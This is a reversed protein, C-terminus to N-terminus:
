MNTNWEYCEGKDLMMQIIDLGKKHMQYAWSESRDFEKGIDYYSNINRVYKAYIVNYLNEPLQEITKIIEHRKAILEQIEKELDVSRMVADAMRSQSSSARVREGGSVTTGTALSEWQSKESRKNNIIRSLRRVQKLYERADVPIM